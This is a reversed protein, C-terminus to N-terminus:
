TRVSRTTGTMLAAIDALTGPLAFGGPSALFRPEWDPHFREKLERLSVM